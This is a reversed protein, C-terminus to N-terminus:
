KLKVKILFDAIEVTNIKRMQISGLSFDKVGELFYKNKKLSSAFNHVGVMERGQKSIASGKIFLSDKNCSIKRLWVGQTMSDSINNLKQFWKISKQGIVKELSSQRSQLDRMETIVLDVKKKFPQIENEQRVLTRINGIKMTIIFLLFIHILILILFLGGASGIVVELPIQIGGLLSQKKKKKRKQIPVLNINIM